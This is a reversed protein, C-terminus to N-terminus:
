MDNTGSCFATIESVKESFLFTIKVYKASFTEVKDIKASLIM